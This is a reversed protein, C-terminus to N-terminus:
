SLVRLVVGIQKTTPHATIEKLAAQFQKEKVRHTLLVITATGDATVGRQTFSHLSVGHNGLALGLHGIVGPSDHTELRVDNGKESEDIPMVQSVNTSIPLQFYQAFVPLKIASAINIVDGVVASATPYRGAGPGMLM